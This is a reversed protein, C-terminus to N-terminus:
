PKFEIEVSTVVEVPDGNLLIPRYVWRKVAEVAAPALLADGSMMIPDTVHGDKRIRINLTVVGGIHAARAAPPYVPAPSELLRFSAISPAIPLGALRNARGPGTGPPEVRLQRTQPLGGPPAPKALPSPAARSPPKTEAKWLMAFALAAVGAVAAAAWLWRRNGRTPFVRARLSGPAAVARWQGLLQSLEDETLPPM